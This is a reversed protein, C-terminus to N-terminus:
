QGSDGRQRATRIERKATALQVAYQERLLSDVDAESFGFRQAARSLIKAEQPRLRGEAMPRRRWPRLGSWRMARRIRPIPFELSAPWPWTSGNSRSANTRCPMQHGSIESTGTGECGGNWRGGGNERDMGASGQPLCKSSEDGDGGRSLLAARDMAPGSRLGSIHYDDAGLRSNWREPGRGCFSCGSSTDSTIPAGCNPCHASSVGKGPDSKLGAKRKLIYLSHTQIRQGTEAADCWAGGAIMREVEWALELM